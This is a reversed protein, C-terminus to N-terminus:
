QKEWSEAKSPDGGKFKYGGEVTGISPGKGPPAAAPTGEGYTSEYAASLREKSGNTYDIIGQLERKMQEISQASEVSALNNELRKGENDSVNGLAGGSKSNNRMNQLVSFGVQSKLKNLLARADAADTGPIDPVAGRLGTIGALGPHNLIQNASVALRDLDSTMSQLSAQAQDRKGQTKIDPPGGPIAELDGTKTFRYGAPAKSEKEKSVEMGKLRLANQRDREKEAAMREDHLKQTQQALKAADERSILGGAVQAKALAEADATRAERNLKGEGAQFERGTAHEFEAQAQQVFPALMPALKPNDTVVKLYAQKVAALKDTAAQVPSPPPTPLPEPSLPRPGEQVLGPAGRAQALAGAVPGAASMFNAQAEPSRPVPAGPGEAEMAHAPAPAPPQMGQAFTEVGQALAAQNKAGLKAQEQGLHHTLLAGIGASGLQALGQSWSPKVFFRGAMQGQIPQLGQQILLNAIQQRRNINQATLASEPDLQGLDVGHQSVPQVNLLGPINAM